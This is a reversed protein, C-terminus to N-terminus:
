TCELGNCQVQGGELRLDNCTMERDAKKDGDFDIGMVNDCYNEKIPELGTTQFSTCYGNCTLVAKQVDMGTSGSIGEYWKVFNGYGGTLAVVVVVLVFVALILIIITNISLNQGKKNLLM